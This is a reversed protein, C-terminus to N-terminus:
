NWNRYTHAQQDFNIENVMLDGGEVTISGRTEDIRKLHIHSNIRSSATTQLDEIIGSFDRQDPDPVVGDMGRGSSANFSKMALEVRPIM